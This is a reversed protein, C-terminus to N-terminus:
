AHVRPFYGLSLLFSFLFCRVRESFAFARALFYACGHVTHREIRIRHSESELLHRKRSSMQTFHLAAAAAARNSSRRGVSSTTGNATFEAAPKTKARCCCAHCRSEANATAFRKRCSLTTSVFKIKNSSYPRLRGDRQVSAFTAPSKQTRLSKSRYPLNPPPQNITPSSNEM